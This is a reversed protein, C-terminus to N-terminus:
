KKVSLAHLANSEMLHKFEVALDNNKHDDVTTIENPLTVERHDMM